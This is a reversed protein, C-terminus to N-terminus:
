DEDRKLTQLKQSQINWLKITEDDSAWAITKGDASFAVSVVGDQHEEFTKLPKGDPKGDVSWLRITNDDSASAIMKGDPSFVVRNIVDQHGKLTQLPKEDPKGDVSWLKITNDDSASAIMKGDPSFVLHYGQITKQEGSHLNWLQITDWSVSAVTTGDPSLVISDIASFVFKNIVVPKDFILWFVVIVFGVITLLFVTTFSFLVKVTLATYKAQKSKAIFEKQLSTATPKKQNQEADILWKQAITLQKGRLLLDESRKKEEWELARQLWKTHSHVHEWDTDLTRVLQNFNANFDRENHNFDIWQVKALEPHLDSPNVERHLVTMFRKNLSAAYEVEDACYPSNVSRPSLIFLFNDCAKIGRYIEQQFDSGSAISEQDFWTTKGQIQLTDNLKRAFDADARSYSVFVDLSEAPPQRLSETIFEEQLPIPPHQTRKQAVKLWTEASRLNYGRLLISPNEHQRKWKLAKTLLVKHENYYAADEHLM